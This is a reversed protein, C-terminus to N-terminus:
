PLWGAWPAGLERFTALREAAQALVAEIGPLGVWEGERRVFRGPIRAPEPALRVAELVRMFAGADDLASRLPVAPDDLHSLLNELPSIRPFRTTVGDVTLLDETYALEARGRSGHVVVVPEAEEVACLTVAVVIVTGHRTRLRLCSTDDAEIDRCRWLELECSVVDEVGTSGDVALATAVAHAFPNTLAGDVVPQGDLTRRGAWAARRYYADTRSWAGRVGIGRLHGLEGDRVLAALRAVAESGLSQFGLQCVLGRDRVTKRLAQWQALAPVPPKELLLHAGADLVARALRDHTPIPTAVIGVDPRTEALLAPLDARVPRDGVLERGEADLEAIECVGALEVRGARELEALQRLYGRGYGSAGALVVRRM